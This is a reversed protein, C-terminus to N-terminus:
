GFPLLDNKNALAASFTSRPWLSSKPNLMMVLSKLMASLAAHEELIIGITAHAM